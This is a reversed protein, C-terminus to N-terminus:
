LNNLFFFHIERRFNQLFSCQVLVLNNQLDIKELFFNKAKGKATKSNRRSRPSRPATTWRGRRWSGTLGARRWKGLLAINLPTYLERSVKYEEGGVNKLVQNEEGFNGDEEGNPIRGLM